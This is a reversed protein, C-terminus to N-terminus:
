KMLITLVMEKRTYMMAMRWFLQSLTIRKKTTTGNKTKAVEKQVTIKLSPLLILAECLFNARLVNLIGKAECSDFETLM